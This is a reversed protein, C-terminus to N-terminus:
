KGDQLGPPIDLAPDPVPDPVKSRGGVRVTGYGKILYHGPPLPGELPAGVIVYERGGIEVRRDGNEPHCVKDTRGHHPTHIPQPPLGHYHPVRTRDDGHQDDCPNEDRAGPPTGLIRRAIPTDIQEAIKLAEELLDMGGPMQKAIWVCLAADPFSLAARALNRIDSADLLKILAERWGSSGVGISRGYFGLTTAVTTWRDHEAGYGPESRLRSLFQMAVRPFSEVYWDITRPIGADGALPNEDRSM